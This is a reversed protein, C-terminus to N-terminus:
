RKNHDRRHLIGRTHLRPDNTAVCLASRAVFHKEGKPTEIVIVASDGTDDSEAEEVMVKRKAQCLAETDFTELTKWHSLPSNPKQLPPVMLYWGVLLAAAHCVKM